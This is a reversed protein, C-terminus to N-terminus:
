VCVCVCVCVENWRSEGHRIMYLIKFNHAPPGVFRLTLAVDGSLLNLSGVASTPTPRLWILLPDRRSLQAPVSNCALPMSVGEICLELELRDGDVGHACLDRYSRWTPTDTGRRGISRVWPGKSVGASSVLRARCFYNASDSAVLKTASIFEIVCLGRLQDRLDAHSQGNGM